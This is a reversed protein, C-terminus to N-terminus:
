KRPPRGRKPLPAVEVANGLREAVALTTAGVDITLAASPFLEVKALGGHSVVQTAIGLADGLPMGLARVLQAAIHLIVVSHPTLKRNIGQGKQVVGPVQFRSLANDIWKPTVGLSLAVTAVTYARM